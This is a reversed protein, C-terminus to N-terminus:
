NFRLMQGSHPRRKFTNIVRVRVGLIKAHKFVNQLAGERTKFCAREQVKCGTENEGRPQALLPALWALFCM